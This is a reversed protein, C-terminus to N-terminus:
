LTLIVSLLVPNFFALGTSGELHTQLNHPHPQPVLNGMPIERASGEPLAKALIGAPSFVADETTWPRPDGPLRPKQLWRARRGSARLGPRLPVARPARCAEPGRARIGGAAAAADDDAEAAKAQGAAQRKLLGPEARGGAGKSHLLSDGGRCGRACTTIVAPQLGTASPIQGREAQTNLLVGAGRARAPGPRSMSDATRKTRREPSQSCAWGRDGDTASPCRRRSPSCGLGPLRRHQPPQSVGERMPRQLLRCCGDSSPAGRRRCWRGAPWRRAGATLARPLRGGPGRPAM